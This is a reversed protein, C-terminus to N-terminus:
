ANVDDLFTTKKLNKLYCNFQYHNYKLVTTGNENVYFNVPQSM